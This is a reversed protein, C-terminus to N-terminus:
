SLPGPGGKQYLFHFIGNTNLIKPVLLNKGLFIARVKKKALTQFFLNQFIPNKNLNFTAPLLFFFLLSIVRKLFFFFNFVTVDGIQNRGLSLKLRVFFNQKM